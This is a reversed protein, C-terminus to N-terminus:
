QRTRLHNTQLNVQWWGPQARDVKAHYLAVDARSIVKEMSEDKSHQAIGISITITLDQTQDEASFSTTRLRPV